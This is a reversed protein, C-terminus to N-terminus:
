VHMKFIYLSSLDLDNVGCKLYCITRQDGYGSSTSQGRIEQVLDASSLRHHVLVM